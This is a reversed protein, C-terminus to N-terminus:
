AWIISTHGDHLGICATRQAEAAEASGKCATGSIVQQFVEYRNEIEAKVRPVWIPSPLLLLMTLPKPNNDGLYAIPSQQLAASARRTTLQICLKALLHVRHLQRQARVLTCEGTEAKDILTPPLCCIKGLHATLFQQLAASARGTTLLVCLEAQSTSDISYDALLAQLKELDTQM